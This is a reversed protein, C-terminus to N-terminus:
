ALVALLLAAPVQLLSLAVFVVGTAFISTAVNGIAYHLIKDRAEMATYHVRDRYAPPAYALLWAYTQRGEILLYVTLILALLAIVVVAVFLRGANVAYGAIAGTNVIDT